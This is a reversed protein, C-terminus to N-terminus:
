YNFKCSTCIIPTYPMDTKDAVSILYPCQEKSEARCVRAFHSRIWDVIFGFKSPKLVILANTNEIREPLSKLQNQEALLVILVNKFSEETYKFLELGEKLNALDVVMIDPELVPTDKMYSLSESYAGEGTFKVPRLFGTYQCYLDMATAINENPNVIICNLFPNM